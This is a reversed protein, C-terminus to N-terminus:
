EVFVAVGHSFVVPGKEVLHGIRSSLVVAVHVVIPLMVDIPMPVCGAVPLGAIQNDVQLWPNRTQIHAGRCFHHIKVRRDAQVNQKV